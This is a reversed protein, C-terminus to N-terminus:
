GQAANKEQIGGAERDQRVIRALLYAAIGAAILPGIWSAAAHPTLMREMQRSGILVAVSGCLIVGETFRKETWFARTILFGLVPGLMVYTNNETRPSFLILYLATLAYSSFAFSADAQKRRVRWCIALTAAAAVFRISTQIREPVDIGAARLATFPTTWGKAVVGVHASITMNQFCAAYQEAVYAPHQTLFPVFALIFMSVATRWTMDWEVASILLVLVIALPKVSVALALWLAPWWRRGRGLAAVALLMFGTMALTAQGNRACDWAMPIAVFTMVAFLDGDKEEEALRGFRRLGVAFVTISALRWLVESAAPPFLAFPIYLIAAQPLYTFGGIGSLEYMRQGAIWQLAGFRYVALVSRTNDHVIIAATVLFLTAWSAWAFRIKNNEAFAM